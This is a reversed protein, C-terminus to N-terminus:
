RAAMCGNFVAAGYTKRQNAPINSPLNDAAVMSGALCVDKTVPIRRSKNDYAFERGDAYGQREANKQVQNATASGAWLTVLICPLVRFLQVRSNM